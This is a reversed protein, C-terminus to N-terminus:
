TAGEYVLGQMLDRRFLYSLHLIFSILSCFHVAFNAPDGGSFGVLLCCTSKQVWRSAAGSALCSPAATRLLSRQPAPLPALKKGHSHRSAWPHTHTHTPTHRYTRSVPRKSTARFPLTEGLKVCVCVRVCRTPYHLTFIETSIDIPLARSDEAVSKEFVVPFVCM